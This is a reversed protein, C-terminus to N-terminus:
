PNQPIAVWGAGLQQLAPDDRTLDSPGKPKVQVRSHWKYWDSCQYSIGGIKVTAMEKFDDVHVMYDSAPPRSKTVFGPGDAPYINNLFIHDEESPTLDEDGQHFDDLEWGETEEVPEGWDHGENREWFKLQMYRVFDLSVQAVVGSPKVTGKDEMCNHFYECNPDMDGEGEPVGDGDADDWSILGNMDSSGGFTSHHVDNDSQQEGAFIGTLTVKFVTVKAKDTVTTDGESYTAKLEVDRFAASGSVGEVYITLPLDELDIDEGSAIASSEGDDKKTRTGWCKINAPYTLEVTGEGAPSYMTLVCLRLDNDGGGGAPNVEEDAKDGTYTADPPQGNNTWGDGDDDDWNVNIYVGPDEEVAEGKADLQLDLQLCNFTM